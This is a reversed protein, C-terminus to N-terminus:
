HLCKGVFKRQSLKPLKRCMTGWRVRAGESLADARTKVAMYFAEAEGNQRISFYRRRERGAADTWAAIWEKKRFELRVGKIQRNSAMDRLKSYLLRPAQYEELISNWMGLPILQGLRAITAQQVDPLCQHLCTAKVEVAPVLADTAKINSSVQYQINHYDAIEQSAIDCPCIPNSSSTSITAGDPFLPYAIVSCQIDSNELLLSSSAAAM